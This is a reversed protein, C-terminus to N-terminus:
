IEEFINFIAILPWVVDVEVRSYSLMGIIVDLSGLNNDNKLTFIITSM